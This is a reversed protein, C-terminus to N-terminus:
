LNYFVAGTVIPLPALGPNSIYPERYHRDHWQEKFVSKHGVLNELEAPTPRLMNDIPRDHRPINYPVTIVVLGGTRALLFLNDIATELQAEVIHELVNAALVVDYKNNPRTPQGIDWVIEPKKAADFDLTSIKLGSSELNKYLKSIYSQTKDRYETSESGIDILTKSGGAFSNIQKEIWQSELIFMSFM